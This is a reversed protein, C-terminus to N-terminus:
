TRPEELVEDYLRSYLNTVHELTFEGVIRDRAAAGLRRWEDAPLRLLALIERALAISDAPAVVRGCAGVIAAADGVDSVVCPVGCAMAEGIVNPWSESLSALVSVDFAATLRAVDPREGLLHVRGGLGLRTVLAGLGANAPDVGQGILLFHTAPLAYAVAAAAELLTQHGKVPHYRAVCGVLVADHPLGLEDRVGRRAAPDPKFSTCDFGNPIVLGRRRDYGVGEHQRRGVQSAYVIRATRGSWRAGLRMLLMTLRKETEVAGLTTRINWLVPVRGPVLASCVSGLLNGHYLWGHILAPNQARLWRRLRPLATPSPPRKRPALALVPIGAARLEGGVPGDVLTVVASAFRRRDLRTVLKLLMKQAGATALSTIVHCVTPPVVGTAPARPIVRTDAETTTM